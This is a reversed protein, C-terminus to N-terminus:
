VSKSCVYNCHVDRWWSALCNPREVSLVAKVEFGQRELQRRQVCPPASYFLPNGLSQDRWICYWSNLRRFRVQDWWFVLARKTLLPPKLLRGICGFANRSSMLFIGGPRLVRHIERLVQLREDLPCMYDIGNWSFFAADISSDALHLSRADGQIVTVERQSRNALEVLKGCYEIAVVDYGLRKLPVSTRGNGVGLDLITAPAQPFFRAILEQEDVRLEYPLSYANLASQSLHLDLNAQTLRLDGM